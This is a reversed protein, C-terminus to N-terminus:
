ADFEGFKKCQTCGHSRSRTNTCEPMASANVADILDAADAFVGRVYEFDRRVRFEKPAQNFKAEYIFVIWDPAIDGYTRHALELYVQGQRMHVPFPRDIHPWAAEPTEYMDLLNSDMRLTGSGISKLEILKDDGLGKIWGDAHGEMRLAEDALPVELYKWRVPVEAPTGWATKRGGPSTAWLGYLVGMDEFRKQWKAHIYHGEDFINQSRLNPNSPPLKAGRLLHYSARLCWDPKIIESPHLVDTRREEPPALLLHREVAGLLSDAPKKKAALYDAFGSM